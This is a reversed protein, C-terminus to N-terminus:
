QWSPLMPRARRTISFHTFSFVIAYFQYSSFCPFSRVTAAIVVRIKDTGSNVTKRSMGSATPTYKYGYKMKM